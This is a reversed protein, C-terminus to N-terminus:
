EPEVVEDGTEIVPIETVVFLSQVLQRVSEEVEKGTAPVFVERAVTVYLLENLSFAPTVYAFQEPQTSENQVSVVEGYVGSNVGPLIVPSGLPLDLGQPARLRAMGGGVGDLPLFVGPGIVYATSQFGPSTVLEVLAYNTATFVVVGIVSDLGVFVTAGVKIGHNSGQDLQILDHPLITPRSLVRALIRESTGTEGLLARLQQNEERLRQVSLQTVAETALRARLDEITTILEQRSRLYQPFSDTSTNLWESTAQFPYVVISVVGSIIRPFLWGLIIILTALALLIFQRRRASTRHSNERTTSLFKKM